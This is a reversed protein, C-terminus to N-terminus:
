SGVKVNSRAQNVADLLKPLVGVPLEASAIEESEPYAGNDITQLVAQVLEDESPNSSM